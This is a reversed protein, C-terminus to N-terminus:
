IRPYIAGLNKHAVVDDFLNSNAELRHVQEEKNDRSLRQLGWPDVAFQFKRRHFRDFVFFDADHSKNDVVGRNFIERPVHPKEMRAAYCWVPGASAINAMVHSPLTAVRLAAPQYASLVTAVPGVIKLHRCLSGATM